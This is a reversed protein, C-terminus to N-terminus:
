AFAVLPDGSQCRLTAGRDFSATQAVRECKRRFVFEM